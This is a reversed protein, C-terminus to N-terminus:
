AFPVSVSLRRRGDPPLPCPLDEFHLFMREKCRNRTHFLLSVLFSYQGADDLGLFHGSAFSLFCLFSVEDAIHSFGFSLPTWFAEGVICSSARGDIPPSPEDRECVLYNYIFFFPFVERHDSGIFRPIKQGPSSCSPARSARDRSRYSKAGQSPPFYSLLSLSFLSPTGNCRSSSPRVRYSFVDCM